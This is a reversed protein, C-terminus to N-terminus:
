DDARQSGEVVLKAKTVLQERMINVTKPKGEVSASPRPKGQVVTIFVALHVQEEDDVSTEAGFAPQPDSTLDIAQGDKVLDAAKPKESAALLPASYTVLAFFFCCTLASFFRFRFPQPTPYVKKLSNVDPLDTNM